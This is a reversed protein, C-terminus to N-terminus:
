ARKKLTIRMLSDYQHYAIRNYFHFSFQSMPLLGCGMISVAVGATTHLHIIANLDPRADYISGHMVYGTQNYHPESGEVVTGDLSVTLLSEATVESFLQGLPYIYFHRSGPVRASLHTYTLDDMQLEALFRYTLALNERVENEIM